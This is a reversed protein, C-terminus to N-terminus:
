VFLRLPRIQRACDSADHWSCLKLARIMIYSPHFAPLRETGELKKKKKKKKERERQGM